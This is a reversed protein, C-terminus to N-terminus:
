VQPRRCIDIVLQTLLFVCSPFELVMTTTFRYELGMTRTESQPGAEATKPSRTTSQPVLDWEGEHLGCAALIKM